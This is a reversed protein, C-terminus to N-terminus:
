IAKVMEERWWLSVVVGLCRLAPPRSPAAEREKDGGEFRGKDRKTEGRKRKERKRRVKIKRKDIRERM